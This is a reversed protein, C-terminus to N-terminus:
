FWSKNIEEIGYPIDELAIGGFGIFVLTPNNERKCYWYISTPSIGIESKQATEILQYENMNNKVKLLIHLGADKGVVEVKDGLIKNISHILLEQKKRYVNRMKKIHRDWYGREMFLQLAKQIVRPVAQEYITYKNKYIQLLSEPLVMYSVRISPVLSKSFTGLYVVRGNRDLGQLAPIPKGAYRFEGDYDDEIIYGNQQKAWKLISLRKAIPMVMGCPFQHSPTIYVIKAAENNLLNINIGDEELPIPLVKYNNNIFIQRAGNYGPEEFAISTDIDRLILSLMSLNQQTGAGILIQDGSCKVGRSLFLYRAIQERLGEEGQHKGYNFLEREELSLCENIVKKFLPYPFSELDIQANRFDYKFKIEKVKDIKKWEPLTMRSEVKMLSEHINEIYIGARGHSSVYGEAMLQEYATVVTNRSINLHKALDRISPLREGSKLNEKLIGNKIYEYLQIYLSKEINSKLEPTLEIM